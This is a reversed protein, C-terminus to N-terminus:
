PTMTMSPTVGCPPGSIIPRSGFCYNSYKKTFSMISAATNQKQRGKTRRNVGARVMGGAFIPLTTSLPLYVGVAFFLANVGCLEMAIALFVHSTPVLSTGDPIFLPFPHDDILTAHWAKYLGKFQTLHIHFKASARFWLVIVM